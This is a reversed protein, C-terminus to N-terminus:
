KQIETLGNLFLTMDEKLKNYQMQSAFSVLQVTGNDNSYYYGLYAIKLGNVTGKMELCLMKKNNVIRYEAFTEKIDISARQANLLAIQRLAELDIPTTEAILMAYGDGSKLSFNYEPNKENAKRGTFAWKSPNISVGV